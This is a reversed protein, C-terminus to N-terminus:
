KQWDLLRGDGPARMLVDGSIPDLLLWEHPVIGASSDLAEMGRDITDILVAGADPAASVSVRFHNPLRLLLRSGGEALSWVRVVPDPWSSEAPGEVYVVLDGVWVIDPRSESSQTGWATVRGAGDLLVPMYGGDFGLVTVIGGSGWASGAFFLDNLAAAQVEVSDVSAQVDEPTTLEVSTGTALSLVTLAESPSVYLIREDDPAWSLGRSVAAAVPTADAASSAVYLTCDLGANRCTEFAFRDGSASWLAVTAQDGHAVREISDGDVLVLRGDDDWTLLQGRASLDAHHGEVNTALASQGDTSSARITRGPDPEWVVTGGWGSAVYRALSVDTGSPGTAGRGSDRGMLYSAYTVPIVFAASLAVALSVRLVDRRAKARHAGQLVSARASEIDGLPYAQIHAVIEREKM